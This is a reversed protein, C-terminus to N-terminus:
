RRPEETRSAREASAQLLAAARRAVQTKPSNARLAEYAGDISARQQRAEDALSEDQLEELEKDSWRALKDGHSTPLSMIWPYMHSNKGKAVEYLLLM